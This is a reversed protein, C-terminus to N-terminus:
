PVIFCDGEYRYSQVVNTQKDVLYYYYCTKSCCSFKYEIRKEDIDKRSIPVSTETFIDKGVRHGIINVFNQRSDVGSVCGSVLLALPLSQRYARMPLRYWAPRM